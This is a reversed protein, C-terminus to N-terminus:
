RAWHQEAPWPGSDGHELGRHERVGCPASVAQAASKEVIPNISAPVPPVEWAAMAQATNRLHERISACDACEEIHQMLTKAEAITLEGDLLAMIEEPAVPHILTNM